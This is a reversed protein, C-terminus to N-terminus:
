TDAKLHYFLCTDPFTLPPQVGHGMLAAGSFVHGDGLQDAADIISPSSISPNHQPWVIKLRYQIDPDLGSFHVRSPLTALETELKAYSFLAENQDKSVCGILNTEPTSPLRLFQGDHILKRHQKYLEIGAKLVELDNESEDRLDLEMGMHGFVASAVRFAMSFERGTVH